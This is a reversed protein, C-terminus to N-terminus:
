NLETLLLIQLNNVNRLDNSHILKLVQILHHLTLITACFQINKIEHLKKAFGEDLDLIWELLTYRYKDFIHEKNKFVLDFPEPLKM